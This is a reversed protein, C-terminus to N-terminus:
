FNGSVGPCSNGNSMFQYHINYSYVIPIIILSTNYM